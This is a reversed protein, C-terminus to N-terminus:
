TFTTLSVLDSLTPALHRVLREFIIELSEPCCPWLENQDANIRPQSRKTYRDELEILSYVNREQLLRAYLGHHRTDHILLTFTWDAQLMKYNRCFEQTRKDRLVERGGFDSEIADQQEGHVHGKDGCTEDCYPIAL